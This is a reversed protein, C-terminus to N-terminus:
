SKDESPTREYSEPTSREGFFLPAYFNRWTTHTRRYAAAQQPDLIREGFTDELAAGAHQQVTADVKLRDATDPISTCARRALAVEEALAELAYTATPPEIGLQAHLRELENWLVERRDPPRPGTPQSFQIPDNLQNKSM